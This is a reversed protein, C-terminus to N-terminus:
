FLLEVGVHIQHETKGTKANKLTAVAPLGRNSAADEPSFLELSGKPNRFKYTEKKFSYGLNLSTTENYQFHGNVALHCGIGRAKGTIFLTDRYLSKDHKQNLNSHIFGVTGNLKFRESAKLILSIRPNISFIKTRQFFNKQNNPEAQDKFPNEKYRIPLLGLKLKQYDYNLRLEPIITMKDDLVFQYSAGISVGGSGGRNKTKQQAKSFHLVEIQNAPMWRVPEPGTNTVSLRSLDHSESGSGIYSGLYLQGTFFLAENLDYRGNITARVEQFNKKHEFGAYENTTFSQNGLPSPAADTFDVKVDATTKMKHQVYGVEAGVQIQEAIIPTASALLAAILFFSKRKMM